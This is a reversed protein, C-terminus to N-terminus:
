SRTSSQGTREEPQGAVFHDRSERTWLLAVAVAGAVCPLWVCLALWAPMPVYGNVSAVCLGLALLVTSTVRAGRWGRRTAAAMWLWCAVGLASLVYLYTATASEETAIEEATYDPYADWLRDSIGGVTTQDLLAAAALLVSCAIGAYMATIAQRTRAPTTATRTDLRQQM